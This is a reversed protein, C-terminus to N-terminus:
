DFWDWDFRCVFGKEEHRCDEQRRHRARLNMCRFDPQLSETAIADHDGVSIRSDIPGMRCQLILIARRDSDTHSTVLVVPPIGDVRGLGRGARGIM